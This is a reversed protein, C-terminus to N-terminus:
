DEDMLVILEPSFYLPNKKREDMRRVINRDEFLKLYNRATQDSGGIRQNLMHPTLVVQEFLCDIASVIRQSLSRDNIRDFFNQRLELVQRFMRLTEDASDKAVGLFYRIWGLWDGRVSVANLTDYYKSKSREIAVSPYVLPGELLGHQCLSITILIRGLRGNGDAFPHITEFQYHALAAVVLRPLDPPPDRMYEVLERILRSVEDPPPPVFRAHSFGMSEDGIYVEGSRYAGPQKQSRRPLGKFLRAHLARVHSETLPPKIESGLELAALCNRVEMAESRKDQEVAALVIERSSVITNEIRSSLRAERLRLPGFLVLPNVNLGAPVQEFLGSLRSVSSSAREIDVSIESLVSRFLQGSPLPDPVFAWGSEGEFSIEVLRGPAVSQDFQEPNM